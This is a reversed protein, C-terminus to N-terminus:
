YIAENMMFMIVELKYYQDETYEKNYNDCRYIISM